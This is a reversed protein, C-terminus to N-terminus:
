RRKGGRLQQARAALTALRGRREAVTADDDIANEEAADDLTTGDERFGDQQAAMVLSESAFRPSDSEDHGIQAQAIASAVRFTGSADVPQDDLMDDYSPRSPPQAVRQKGQPKAVPKSKTIPKKKTAM